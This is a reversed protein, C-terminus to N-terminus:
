LAFLFVGKKKGITMVKCHQVLLQHELLEIIAYKLMIFYKMLLEYDILIVTYLIYEANSSFSEDTM